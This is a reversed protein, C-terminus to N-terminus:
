LVALFTIVTYVLYWVSGALVHTTKIIKKRNRKVRKKRTKRELLVRIDLTCKKIYM